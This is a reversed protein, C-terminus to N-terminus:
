RGIIKKNNAPGDMTMDSGNMEHINRIANPEVVSCCASKVTQMVARKELIISFEIVFAAGVFSIPILDISRERPQSRKKESMPLTTTIRKITIGKFAINPKVYMRFHDGDMEM